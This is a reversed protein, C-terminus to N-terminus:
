EYYTLECEAGFNRKRLLMLETMIDYVTEPSLNEKTLNCGTLFRSHCTMAISQFSVNCNVVM